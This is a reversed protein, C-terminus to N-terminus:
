DGCPLRGNLDGPSPSWLALLLRGARFTKCVHGGEGSVSQQHAGTAACACSLRKHYLERFLALTEQFGALSAWPPSLLLVCAWPGLLATLAGQFSASKVELILPMPHLCLPSSCSLLSHRFSMISRAQLASGEDFSSSEAGSGLQSCLRVISVSLKLKSSVASVSETGLVAHKRQVTRFFPTNPNPDSEFTCLPTAGM